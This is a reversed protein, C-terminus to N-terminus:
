ETECLAPRTVMLTSRAPEEEPAALTTYEVELSVARDPVSKVASLPVRCHALPSEAAFLKVTGILPAVGNEPFLVNLTVRDLGLVAALMALGPCAVTVIAPEAAAGTPEKARDAEVYATDWLEPVSVTVSFRVPPEDPVALTAYAVRLPLATAPLSYVASFPVSLQAFPSEEAFLKVIGMLLAVGKEPFLDKATVRDAALPAVNAEGLEAVTVIAPEATRGV